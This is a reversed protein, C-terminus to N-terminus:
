QYSKRKDSEWGHSKALDKFVDGIAPNEPYMSILFKLASQIHKPLTALILAQQDNLSEQQLGIEVNRLAEAPIEDQIHAVVLKFRDHMDTFALLLAAIDDSDARTKSTMLYSIKLRHLGSMESLATQTLGHERSLGQLVGAFRTM